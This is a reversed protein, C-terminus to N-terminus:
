TPESIFCEWPSAPLRTDKVRDKDSVLQTVELLIVLGQNGLKNFHKAEKYPLQSPQLLLPLTYLIDLVFGLKHLYQHSPAMIM